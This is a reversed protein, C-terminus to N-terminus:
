PTVKALIQGLLDIITTMNNNITTCCNDQATKIEDLKTIIQDQKGSQTNCCSNIAAVILSENSCGKTPDSSCDSM